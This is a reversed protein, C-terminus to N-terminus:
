AAQLFEIVSEYALRTQEVPKKLWADQNLRVFRKVRVPEIDLWQCVWPLSWQGTKTSHLIWHRADERIAASKRANRWESHIESTTGCADLIGRLLVAWLLMYEGRFHQVGTNEVSGEIAYSVGEVEM